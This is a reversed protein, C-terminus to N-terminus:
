AYFLVSTSLCRVRTTNNRESGTWTQGHCPALRTGKRKKEEEEEKKKKEKKRENRKKREKREKRKKREKREEKGRKEKRNKEEGTRAKEGRM